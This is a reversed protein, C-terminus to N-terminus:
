NAHQRHKKDEHTEKLTYIEVIFGQILLFNPFQSDCIAKRDPKMMRKPTYTEEM